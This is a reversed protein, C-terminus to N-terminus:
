KQKATYQYTAFAGKWKPTSKSEQARPLIRSENPKQMQFIKRAATFIPEKSCERIIHTLMTQVENITIDLANAM